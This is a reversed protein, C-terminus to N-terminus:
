DLSHMMDDMTFINRKTFSTFTLQVISKFDKEMKPLKKYFFDQFDQFIFLSGKTMLDYVNVEYELYMNRLFHDENEFISPNFIQIISNKKGVRPIKDTKFIKVKM